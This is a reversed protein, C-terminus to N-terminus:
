RTPGHDEGLTGSIARGALRRAEYPVAVAPSHHRVIWRLSRAYLGLVRGPPMDAHEHVLSMGEETVRRRFEIVEGM